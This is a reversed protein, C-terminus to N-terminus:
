KHHALWDFATHLVAMVVLALAFSALWVLLRLLRRGTARVEREAAESHPHHFLHLM